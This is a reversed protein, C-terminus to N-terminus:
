QNNRKIYNNKFFTPKYRLHRRAPHELNYAIRKEIIDDFLQELEPQFEILGYNADRLTENFCPAADPNRTENNKNIFFRVITDIQTQNFTNWCAALNKTLCTLELIAMHNEAYYLSDIKRKTPLTRTLYEINAHDIYTILKMINEISPNQFMETLEKLKIEFTIPDAKKDNSIFRQVGQNFDKIMKEWVKPLRAIKPTTAVLKYKM